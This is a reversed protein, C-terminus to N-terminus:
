HGDHSGAIGNAGGGFGEAHEDGNADKMRQLGAGSMGYANSKFARKAEPSGAEAWHGPINSDPEKPIWVMNKVAGASVQGRLTSGGAVDVKVELGGILNDSTLGNQTINRKAGEIKIGYTTAVVAKNTPAKVDAAKRAKFVIAYSGAPLGNLVFTGRADTVARASPKQKVIVEVGAVGVPQQPGGFASCVAVTTLALAIGFTMNTKMVESFIPNSKRL